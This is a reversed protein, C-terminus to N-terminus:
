SHAARDRFHCRLSRRRVNADAGFFNRRKNVPLHGAPTQHKHIASIMGFKRRRSFVVAHFNQIEGRRDCASSFTKRLMQGAVRAIIVIGERRQVSRHDFIARHNRDRALVRTSFRNQKQEDAGAANLAGDRIRADQNDRMLAAFRFHDLFVHREAILRMERIDHRFQNQFFARAQLMAFNLVLAQVGKMNRRDLRMLFAVAMQQRMRNRDARAMVRFLTIGTRSASPQSHMM